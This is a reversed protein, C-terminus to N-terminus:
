SKDSKNDTNKVAGMKWIKDKVSSSVAGMIVWFVIDGNQHNSTAGVLGIVCFTVMFFCVIKLFINM